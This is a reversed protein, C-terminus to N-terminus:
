CWIRFHEKTATAFPFTKQCSLPEKSLEDRRRSANEVQKERDNKKRTSSRLPWKREMPSDVWTFKTKLEDTDRAFVM